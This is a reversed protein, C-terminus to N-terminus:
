EKIGFRSILAKLSSGDKCLLVDDLAALLMHQADM